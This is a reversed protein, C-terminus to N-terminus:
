FEKGRRDIYGLTAIRVYVDADSFSVRTRIVKSTNTRVVMKTGRADSADASLNALPASSSSAAEDNAAKESVYLHSGGGAGTVLVVNLIADMRYDPPVLLTRDVASTGPNDDDVDLPPDTWTTHDGDQTFLMTASGDWYVSGLRVRETFGTPLTPANSTSFFGQDDKGSGGILWVHFWKAGTLNDASARGGSAVGITTYETFTADLQKIHAAALSLLFDGTLSKASGATFDIDNTVDGASNALALGNWIGKPLAAILANINSRYIAGNTTPVALARM